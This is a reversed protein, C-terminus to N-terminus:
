SLRLTAAPSSWGEIKPKGLEVWGLYATKASKREEPSFWKVTRIETSNSQVMARILSHQRRHHTPCLVLALKSPDGGMSLPHEHHQDFGGAGASHPSCMWTHFACRMVPGDITLLDPM